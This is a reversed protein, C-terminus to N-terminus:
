LGHTTQKINNTLPDIKFTDGYENSVKITDSTILPGPPFDGVKYPNYGPGEIPAPGFITNKSELSQVRTALDNVTNKLEKLEKSIEILLEKETKEVKKYTMEYQYCKSADKCITDKFENGFKCIGNCRIGKNYSEMTIM